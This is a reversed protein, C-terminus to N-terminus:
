ENDNTDLPSSATTTITDNLKPTESLSNNNSKSKFYDIMTTPSDNAADAPIQNTMNSTDMPADENEENQIIRCIEDARRRSRRERM